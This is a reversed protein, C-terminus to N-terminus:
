KETQRKANPILGRKRADREISNILRERCSIAASDTLIGCADNVLVESM